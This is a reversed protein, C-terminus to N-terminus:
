RNPVVSAHAPPTVAAANPLPVLSMGIAFAFCAWFCGIVVWLGSPVVSAAVMASASSARRGRPLLDILRLATSRAAEEPPQRLHMLVISETLADAAADKSKESWLAAEAWPDKGLRALVSLVTLGSGNAETGVDSYLFENLTSNRLAFVDAM